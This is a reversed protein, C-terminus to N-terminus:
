DATAKQCIMSVKHYTKVDVKTSISSHAVYFPLPLVAKGQSTPTGHVLMPLLLLFLLWLYRKVLSQRIVRVVTCKPLLILLM